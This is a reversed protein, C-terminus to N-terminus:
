GTLRQRAEGFLRGYCGAVFTDEGRRLLIPFIVGPFEYSEDEVVLSFLLDIERGPSEGRRVRKQVMSRAEATVNWWQGPISEEGLDKSATEIDGPGKSLYKGLYSEASKRVIQANVRPTWSLSHGVIREILNKFFARAGFVDVSFRKSGPVFAPIVAHHHLYAEGYLELRKTQIETVGVILPRVGSKVLSRKLWQYLQRVVEGWKSALLARGEESLPPVTWTWFALGKVGFREEMLFACNKVMRSGYTTIGGRGYKGRKKQAEVPAAIPAQSFKLTSVLNSGSGGGPLWAWEESVRAPIGETRFQYGLSFQGNPWITGKPVRIRQHYVEGGVVGRLGATRERSLALLRSTM